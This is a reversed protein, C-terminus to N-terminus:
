KRFLSLKALPQDVANKRQAQDHADRNGIQREAGRYAIETELLDLKGLRDEDAVRNGGLGFDFLYPGGLRPRLPADHDELMASFILAAFDHHRAQSRSHHPALRNSRIAARM